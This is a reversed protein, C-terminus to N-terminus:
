SVSNQGSNRIAMPQFHGGPPAKWGIADQHRRNKLRSRANRRAFLGSIAQGTSKVQTCTLPLIKELLSRQDTTVAWATGGLDDHRKEQIERMTLDPTKGLKM